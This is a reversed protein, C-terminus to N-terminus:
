KGVVKVEAEQLSLMANDFAFVLNKTSVDSMLVKPQGDGIGRSRYLYDGEENLVVTDFVVRTVKKFGFSARNEFYVYTFVFVENEINTDYERVIRERSGKFLLSNNDLTMASAEPHVWVGSIKTLFSLVGEIKKPIEKTVREKDIFVVFGEKQWYPLAMPVVKPGFEPLSKYILEGKAAEDRLTPTSEVEGDVPVEEEFFPRADVTAGVLVAAYKASPDYSSHVKKYPKMCGTAVISLVFLFTRM